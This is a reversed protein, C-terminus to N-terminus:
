SGGKFEILGGCVFTCTLHRCNGSPVAQTAQGVAMQGFWVTASRLMRTSQCRRVGSVEVSRWRGGFRLVMASRVEQNWRPDRGQGAIKDLLPALHFRVVSRLM